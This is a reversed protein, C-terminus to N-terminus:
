ADFRDVERAKGRQPEQGRERDDDAMDLQELAVM